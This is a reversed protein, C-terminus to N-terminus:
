ADSELSRIRRDLEGFSLRILTQLESIEGRVTKFEGVVTERFGQLGEAVIRTESRLGEAVVNFHRKLQDLEGFSLRILARTEGLQDAFRSETRDLRENTAVQADAITRMESRLGESVVNFHRKIDEATEHDM